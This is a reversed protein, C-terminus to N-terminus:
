TYSTGFGPQTSAYARVGYAGTTLIGGAAQYMYGTSQANGAARAMSGRNRASTAAVNGRYMVNLADLEGQVASDYIVDGATGDLTVGSKLFATRQSATIRKNRDRVAAAEANAQQMATSAEINAAQQAARGQAKAAGAAQISGVAGIAGAAVLGVLAITELGM